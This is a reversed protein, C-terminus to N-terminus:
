PSEFIAHKHDVTLIRACVASAHAASDPPRGSALCLAARLNHLQAEFCGATLQRWAPRYAAGRPPFDNAATRWPAGARTIWRPADFAERLDRRRRGAELPLLTLYPAVFAGDRM